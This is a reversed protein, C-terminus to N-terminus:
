SSARARHLTVIKSAESRTPPLITISSTRNRAPSTHLRRRRFRRSSSSRVPDAARGPGADRAASWESPHRAPAADVAFQQVVDVPHASFIPRLGRVGDLREALSAGLHDRRQFIIFADARVVVLVGPGEDIAFLQELALDLVRNGLSEELHHRSGIEGGFAVVGVAEVRQLVEHHIDVAIDAEIGDLVAVLLDDFAQALSISASM